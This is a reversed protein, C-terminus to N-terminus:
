EEYFFEKLIANAIYMLCSSDFPHKSNWKRPVTIAKGGNEIFESVNKDCDDILLTESNALLHKHPTLIYRRKYEPLNKHIWTLKGEASTPNLTPTSCLYIKRAGFASELLALIYRGEKTWSLDDWFWSDLSEWFQNAPMPLKLDFDWDGLKYPYNVDYDYGIKHYSHCGKMFDVLVGDMDLLVTKIM